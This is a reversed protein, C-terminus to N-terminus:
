GECSVAEGVTLPASALVPAPLPPFGNIRYVMLDPHPPSANPVQAGSGPVPQYTAGLVTVPRAGVHVATIVWGGGLYVGSLGTDTVVVNEFGFDDVPPTSNGTGNGSSIVVAQAASALLAIAVATLSRSGVWSRVRLMQM